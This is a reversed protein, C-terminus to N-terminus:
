NPPSIIINNKLLVCKCTVYNKSNYGFEIFINNASKTYYSNMMINDELKYVTKLDQIETIIVKYIKNNNFIIKNNQTILNSWGKKENKKIYIDNDNDNNNDINDYIYLEFLYEPTPPQYLHRLQNNINIPQTTLGISM